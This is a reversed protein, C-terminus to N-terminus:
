LDSDRAILISPIDAHQHLMAIVDVYDDRVVYFIVYPFRRLMWFRLDIDHFLHRYQPSGSQPFADLHALAASIQDLFDGAVKGGAEKLYHRFGADIELEVQQRLLVRM